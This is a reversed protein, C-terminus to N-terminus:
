LCPQTLLQVRSAWDVGARATPGSCRGHWIATEQNRGRTQLLSQLGEKATVKTERPTIPRPPKPKSRLFVNEEPSLTTPRLARAACSAVEATVALATPPDAVLLTTASERRRRAAGRRRALSQAANKKLGSELPSILIVRGVGCCEADAALRPSGAAARPSASAPSPASAEGRQHSSAASVGFCKM